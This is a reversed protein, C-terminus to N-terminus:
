GWTEFIRQAIDFVVPVCVANGAMKYLQADSINIEKAKYYIDDPFGQLRFCELPTLRRIGVGDFTAQTCSTELTQSLGKGVRGRRTKSNLFSINISDGIGAPEYGKKTNNKILVIPQGSGDERARAPIAPCCGDKIERFGRGDNHTRLTGIKLLTQRCLDSQTKIAPVYNKKENVWKERSNKWYILDATDAIIDQKFTGTVPFIQRFCETTLFGVLFIRERNQPLYSKSNIVQWQLIYGLDALSKLIKQFTRGFDHSLLNKVNELLFCKPKKDKLIRIVEYFLQGREDDFGGQQGAISFSQCPFGGCLIDFDPLEDTNITTADNFYKEKTTNFYNMYLKNAHKDCECHGVCQFGAKEFALRFGGMGSFLDFFKLM